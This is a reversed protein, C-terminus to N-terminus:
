DSYPDPNPEVDFVDRQLLPRTNVMEESPEMMRGRLAALESEAKEARDRMDGLEDMTVSGNHKLKLAEAKLADIYYAVQKDATYGRMRMQKVEDPEAPLEASRISQLERLSALIASEMKFSPTLVGDECRPVNMTQEAIQEELTPTNGPQPTTMQHCRGICVGKLYGCGAYVCETQLMVQIKNEIM